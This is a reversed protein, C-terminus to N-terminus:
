SREDILRQILPDLFLYTSSIGVTLGFIFDPGIVIACFINLLLTLIILWNRKLYNM